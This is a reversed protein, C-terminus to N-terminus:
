TKIANKTLICALFQLPMKKFLNKKRTFICKKSNSTLTLIIKNLNVANKHFNKNIQTRLISIKVFIYGNQIKGLISETELVKHKMSYM